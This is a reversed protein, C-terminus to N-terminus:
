ERGRQSRSLGFDMAAVEWNVTTKFRASENECELEKGERIPRLLLYRWDFNSSTGVEVQRDDLRVNTTFFTDLSGFGFNFSGTASSPVKKTEPKTAENWKPEISQRHHPHKRHIILENYSRMSSKEEKRFNDIASTIEHNLPNIKAKQAENSINSFQMSQCQCHM